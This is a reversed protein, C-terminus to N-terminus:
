SLDNIIEPQDAYLTKLKHRWADSKIKFMRHRGGPEKFKCVVGEFTMGELTSNRIMNELTKNVTGVHLLKPTEFDKFMHSFEKPPLFGKKEYTVDFLVVKHDEKAHQGAFSNEGLFEFFCTANMWRNSRFLEDFKDRQQQILHVAEGLIDENKDLLRKRAGFKYFGNKRMWEARINSGDLKDFVYCHKGHMVVDSMSPYEKM